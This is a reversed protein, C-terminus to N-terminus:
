DITGDDYVSIEQIYTFNNESHLFVSMEKLEAPLENKPWDEPNWNDLKRHHNPIALQHGLTTKGPQEVRQHIVGDFCLAELNEM